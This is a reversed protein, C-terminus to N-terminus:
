NRGKCAPAVRRPALSSARGIGAVFSILFALCLKKAECRGLCLLLIVLHGSPYLVHLFRAMLFVAALYLEEPCVDEYGGPM